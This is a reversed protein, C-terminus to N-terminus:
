YIRQFKNYRIFINIIIKFFIFYFPFLEIGFTELTFGMLDSKGQLKIKCHFNKINQWPSKPVQATAHTKHCQHGGPDLLYELVAARMCMMVLM